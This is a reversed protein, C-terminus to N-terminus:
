PPPAQAKLKMAEEQAKQLKYIKIKRQHNYLYIALIVLGVIAVVTVVIIIALNNQQHYLVTLSVDRTVNGQSSVAHCEYIGSMERRVNKVVGIPLPAGDTRRSCSLKPAPNGWAQCKLTQQSGEQWTWNGLCDREDLRPGYLVRLELTQNKFLSKGAVELAASCFFHRKHDESSVNLTFQVQPSPPGPTAGSLLVVLAGGRAECRVTVQSGESVEPQSLTLVPAPFNYIHLTKQDKLIHGALELVCRLQQTGELEGTVEVLTTASVFDRSSTKEQPLRQGGLELHIQADSAPFLGELSCHLKQQTGVELFDPTDLKLTTVPLDFTRLQRVVSVNSFLSLGQPRLDLETRCSFNAGHHDRSALVLATIEKSEGPLDGVLGQSLMEEGHLLEVSLQTQPAGGEVECRLTFNQGVQQWAPLPKLEVREPLSYVVVRASLSSQITDCNEFCMPRSDKQINSLKFLKWNRESRLEVKQWQTELGLNLSRNCSSSCNVLLSGGQPLFAEIPNMSLQAGGPGPIMVIVLALLLPLVPGAFTPAM